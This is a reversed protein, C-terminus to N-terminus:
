QNKRAETMQKWVSGKAEEGHEIRAIALKVQLSVEFEPDNEAEKLALLAREDGVEYLFMAARWRVLKSSDELAEMMAEMAEPFGLDSLCDGATRRVTVSKDKLAKYLYPLVAEDEIMGLYVTSLRRISAKEDELAKELLSLDEVTPDPMQELLQYRVRWDPHNFEELSIRIREKAIAYHEPNKAQEVLAKLREPPYAAMLEEKMESGIEDWEGYRVGYDKWRRVMVLNDDPGQVELAANAFTEPLAYRKEETGDTLKIQVPVGKYMHVQVKIEGFHEDIEHNHGSENSQEQGFAKRVEPLIVKWDFRANREVALFDAVHYVGKVGEIELIKQVVEPAGEQKDKKYNNSKGMPLEEDLNVKMTNPSPTPEISVIKM